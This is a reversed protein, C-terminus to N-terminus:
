AARKRASIPRKGARAPRGDRKQDAWLEPPPGDAGYVPDKRPRRVKPIRELARAHEAASGSDYTGSPPYAGVVLIDDSAALCHHGTGAPLIAVDGAKATVVKGRDGGFRVRAHGRAVGLVEHIRSHYHVYDYIGNRWSDGWGNAAFLQELVAAPDASGALHVPGRYLVLRLPNNPIRGDDRFRLTQAKRERLRAQLDRPKLKTAGTLRGVASKLTEIAFMAGDESGRPLVVANREAPEPGFRQAQTVKMPRAAAPRAVKLRNQPQGIDLSRSRPM